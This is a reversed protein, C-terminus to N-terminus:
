NKEVEEHYESKFTEEAVSYNIVEDAFGWVEKLVYLFNKLNFELEEEGKFVGEWSLAVTDYCAEYFVDQQIETPLDEFKKKRHRNLATKELQRYKRQFNKNRAPAIKVSAGSNEENIYIPCWVGNASAQEQWDTRKSIDFAM